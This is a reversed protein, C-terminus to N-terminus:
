GIVLRLEFIFLLIRTEGDGGGPQRMARAGTSGRIM